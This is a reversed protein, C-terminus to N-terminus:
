MESAFRPSPNQFFFLFLFIGLVLWVFFCFKFFFGVFVSVQELWFYIPWCLRKLQELIGWCQLAGATGVCVAVLAAWQPAVAKSEEPPLEFPSKLGLRSCGAPWQWCGGGGQGLVVQLGVLHREFFCWPQWVASLVPGLGTGLGDRDM